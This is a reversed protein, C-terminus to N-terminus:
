RRRILGAGALLGALLMISGPEPIPTIDMRVYDIGMWNGGGSANYNIGRLEVINDYGPGVVSSDFGLGGLTFGPTTYDFDIDAPRIIVESLVQVGNFWIETGYRPDPNIGADIHHNNADFTITLIDNLGTGAPFNFHYRLTNDTGAYAREAAEENAALFGVPVYAGYAANAVSYDGALYYDDDAQANVEPSNPNGPLVNTGTEQVFTANPGGGDGVPWGNDDQGVTWLLAAQSLLSSSALLTLAPLLASKM